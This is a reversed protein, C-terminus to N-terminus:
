ETGTRSAPTSGGDGTDTDSGGDTGGPRPTAPSAGSGGAASGGTQSAGAVSAGTPDDGTAGAPDLPEGTEPDVLVEGDAAGLESDSGELDGGLLDTVGTAEGAGAGNSEPVKSPVLMVVALFLATFGILPGYGRFLRDKM